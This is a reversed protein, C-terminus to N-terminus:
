WVAQRLSSSEFSNMEVTQLIGKACL